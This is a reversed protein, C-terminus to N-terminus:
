QSAVVLNNTVSRVDGTNRAIEGALAREEETEVEGELTVVEDRTDVNISLGSTDSNSLLKTKVTATTTADSVWKMLDSGTREARQALSEDADDEEGAITASELEGHDAYEDEAEPEDAVELDELEQNNAVANGGTAGGVQLQNDVNEVGEIGRALQAALEKHVESEVTGTFTVRGNDVDTDIDFASVESNLALVTEIKGQIWADRVEGTFGNDPEAALVGNSGLLLLSLLAATVASITRKTM